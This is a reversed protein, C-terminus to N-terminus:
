CGNAVARYTGQKDMYGDFMVSLPMGLKVENLVLQHEFESVHVVVRRLGRYNQYLFGYIDAIASHSKISNEFTTLAANTQIHNMALIFFNKTFEFHREEPPINELVAEKLVKRKMFEKTNAREQGFEVFNVHQPWRAHMVIGRDNYYKARPGTFLMGHETMIEQVATSSVRDIIANSKLGLSCIKCYFRYLAPDPDPIHGIWWGYRPDKLLEPTLLNSQHLIVHDYMDSSVPQNWIYPGYESEPFRQSAYDKLLRLGTIINGLNSNPNGALGCTGQMKLMEKQLEKKYVDHSVAAYLDQPLYQSSCTDTQAEVVATEQLPENSGPVLPIMYQINDSIIFVTGVGCEPGNPKGPSLRTMKYGFPDFPYPHTVCRSISFNPEKDDDGQWDRQIYNQSPNRIIKPCLQDFVECHDFVSASQYFVCDIAQTSIVPILAATIILPSKKGNIVPLKLLERLRGATSTKLLIIGHPVDNGDPLIDQWNEATHQVSEHNFDIDFKESLPGVPPSGITFLVENQIKTMKHNDHDIILYIAPPNSGRVNISWHGYMKSADLRKGAACNKRYEIYEKPEPRPNATNIENILYFCGTSDPYTLPPQLFHKNSYDGVARMVRSLVFESRELSDTRESSETKDGDSYLKYPVFPCSESLETENESKTDNSPPEETTTQKDKEMEGNSPLKFSITPWPFPFSPWPIPISLITLGFPHVPLNIIKNELPCSTNTVLLTVVSPMFLLMANQNKDYEIGRFESLAADSSVQLRKSHWDKRLSMYQVVDQESLLLKGTIGSRFQFNKYIQYFKWCTYFDYGVQKINTKSTSNYTLLYETAAKCFKCKGESPSPGFFLETRDKLYLITSNSFFHKWKQSTESILYDSCDPNLCFQVKLCSSIDLIVQVSSNGKLEHLRDSTNSCFIEFLAPDENQIKQLLPQINVFDGEKRAKIFLYLIWPDYEDLLEGTLPLKGPTEDMAGDWYDLLRNFNKGPFLEKLYSSTKLWVTTNGPYQNPDILLIHFFGSVFDEYYIYCLLMDIVVQDIDVRFRQNELFAEITSKCFKSIQEPQVHRWRAIWDRTTEATHNITVGVDRQYTLNHHQM